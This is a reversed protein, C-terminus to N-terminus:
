SYCLVNMFACMYMSFLCTDVHIYKGTTFEPIVYIHALACTVSTCTFWSYCACLAHAFASVMHIGLQSRLLLMYACQAYYGIYVFCVHGHIGLQSSLSFMAFACLCVHLFTCTWKNWPKPITPCASFACM